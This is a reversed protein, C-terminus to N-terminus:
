VTSKINFFLNCINSTWHEHKFTIYLIAHHFVILFKPLKDFFAHVECIGTKYQIENM